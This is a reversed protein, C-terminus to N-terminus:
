ASFTVSVDVEPTIGKVTIAKGSSKNKVTITNATRLVEYNSAKCKVWLKLSQNNQSQYEPPNITVTCNNVITFVYINTENFSTQVSRVFSEKDLPSMNFFSEDSGDVTAKYDGGQISFSSMGWGNCGDCMPNVAYPQLNLNYLIDNEIQPVLNLDIGEKTSVVTQSVGLPMTKDIWKSVYKANNSIKYLYRLSQCDLSMLTRSLATTKQVEETQVDFYSMITTLNNNASFLGADTFSNEGSCGPMISSNAGDDHPHALGVCHGVEHIATEYFFSGKGFVVQTPPKFASESFGIILKGQYVDPDEVLSSPFTGIALTGDDTGNQDKLGEMNFFVFNADNQNNVLSFGVGLFDATSECSDILSQRKESNLPILPSVKIQNFNCFGTILSTLKTEIYLKLTNGFAPWNLYANGTISRLYPNLKALEEPPIFKVLDSSKEKLGKPLPNKARYEKRLREMKEKGGLGCRRFKKVRSIEQVTLAAVNAPNAQDKGTIVM